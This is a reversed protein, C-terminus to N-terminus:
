KGSQMWTTVQAKVSCPLTTWRRHLEPLLESLKREEQKTHYLLPPLVLREAAHVMLIVGFLHKRSMHPTHLFQRSHCQHGEAPHPKAKLAKEPSIEVCLKAEFIKDFPRAACSDRLRLDCM